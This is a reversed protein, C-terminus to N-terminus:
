EYSKWGAIFGKGFHYLTDGIYVFFNKVDGWTIGGGNVLCLEKQSLKKM